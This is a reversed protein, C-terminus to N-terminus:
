KTSAPKFVAFGQPSLGKVLKRRKILGWAPDDWLIGVLWYGSRILQKEGYADTLEWDPGRYIYSEVVEGHGETGDQHFLGVKRQRMFNWATRELVDPAIKVRHGDMAPRKDPETSWAVGLTYQKDAAERLITGLVAEDASRYMDEDGVEEGEEADTDVDLTAVFNQAAQALSVGAWDAAEQLDDITINCDVGDEGNKGTEGKHPDNPRGCGCTLCM